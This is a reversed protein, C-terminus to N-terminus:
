KYKGRVIDLRNNVELKQYIKKVHTKITEMSLGLREAISQNSLGEEIAHLVQEERPTLPQQLRSAHVPNFYDTVKRAIDPSMYSGGDYISKLAEKIKLMPTQKSVYGLAGACLAQFIRQTDNYVSLMMVQCKPARNRIMKVGEIGSVGPLGIDSLVMEFYIDETWLSMFEEVSGANVLCNFDPETKFFSVISDRVFADDEIIGIRIM